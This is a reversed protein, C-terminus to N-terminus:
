RRCSCFLMAAISVLQLASPEPIVMPTQTFSVTLQDFTLFTPFALPDGGDVLPNIGTVTFLDVPTSFTHMDGGNVVV